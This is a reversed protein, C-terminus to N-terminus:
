LPPMLDPGAWKISDPTPDVYYKAIILLGKTMDRLKKLEEPSPPEGPFRAVVKIDAHGLYEERSDVLGSAVKVIESARLAALGAYVKGKDKAPNVLDKARAKCGDAGLILHRM